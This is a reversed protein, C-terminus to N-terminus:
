AQVLRQRLEKAMAAQLDRDGYETGQMLIAVQEDVAPKAM